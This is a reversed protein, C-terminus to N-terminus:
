FLFMLNAGRASLEQHPPADCLIPACVLFAEPLVRESERERQFNAVGTRSTGRQHKPLNGCVCLCLLTRFVGHIYRKYLPVYPQDDCRAALPAARSTTSYLMYITFISYISRANPKHQQQQQQQQTAEERRKPQGVIHKIPLQGRAM